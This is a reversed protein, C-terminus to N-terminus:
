HNSPLDMASVSSVPSFTHTPPPGLPPVMLAQYHGGPALILRYMWQFWLKGELPVDPM